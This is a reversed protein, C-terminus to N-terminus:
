LGLDRLSQETPSLSPEDRSTAPLTPQTAPQLPKLQPRLGKQLSQHWQQLMRQQQLYLGQYKQRSVASSLAADRLIVPRIFMMLNVKRRQNDTSRFLAGLAPIDGLLPVKSDVQTERETLLGGLVLVSGDKVQVTTDIARKSTQLDVADGKPLVDSLELHLKLQVEDGQNILPRLNLKLGVNERKITVFPNTPTAGASQSTYSGTQFPVERGVVISADQNDLTLLTPTSIINAQTDSQLARLFALWGRDPGYQEGVAANLGRGIAQAQAAPNGQNAILTPLAGSLNLLGVGNAGAAGWEIGLQAAKDASLEVIVAEILVQARRVDLHHIVSRLAKLLSPPASIVLANMAEDAEITVPAVDAETAVARAAKGGAPAAARQFTRSGALKQLLPAVAKASAYHLYVVDVQGNRAVPQDLQAVLARLQLRAAQPGSVILQNGQPNYSLKVGAPVMGQLVRALHDGEAYQLPIVDYAGLPQDLRAIVQRLRDINARTDTLILHRDGPVASILGERAVLPRLAPVLKTGDLWKLPVVTTIWADGARSRPAPLKDRVTSVPVIKIATPGPIAAYGQVRLVALLTQYLTDAPMLNPAVLTVKGKVRPDIIFNKGTLKAVAEIVDRIDANHFSQTLQVPAALAAPIQVALLGVIAMVHLSRLLRNNRLM